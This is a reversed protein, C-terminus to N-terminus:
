EQQRGECRDGRASGSGERNLIILLYGFPYATNQLCLLRGPIAATNFVEHVAVFPGVRRSEDRAIFDSSAPLGYEVPITFAVGRRFLHTRQSERIEFNVRQAIRIRNDVATPFESAAIIRRVAAERKEESFGWTSPADKVVWRRRCGLYGNPQFVKRELDV